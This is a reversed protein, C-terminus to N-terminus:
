LARIKRKKQRKKSIATKSQSCYDFIVKKCKECINAAVNTRRGAKLPTIATFGDARKANAFIGPVESAFGFAGDKSCFLYGGSMEGGCYPCKM